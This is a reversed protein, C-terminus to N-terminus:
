TFVLGVLIVDFRIDDDVFTTTDITPFLCATSRILKRGVKSRKKSQICFTASTKLTKTAVMCSSKSFIVVPM